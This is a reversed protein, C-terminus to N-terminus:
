GFPPRVANTGFGPLSQQAEDYFGYPIVQGVHFGLLKAVVPAM